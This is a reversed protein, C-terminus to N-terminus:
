EKGSRKGSFKKTILGVITSVAVPALKSGVMAAAESINATAQEAKTSIRNLRRLITVVLSAIVISLILLVAFGIALIVVLVTEVTNM